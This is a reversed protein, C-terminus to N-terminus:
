FTLTIEYWERCYHESSLVRFILVGSVLCVIWYLEFLKVLHVFYLFWVMFSFRLFLCGGLFGKFIDFDVVCVLISVPLYVLSFKLLMYYLMFCYVDDLSFASLFVLEVSLSGIFAFSLLV